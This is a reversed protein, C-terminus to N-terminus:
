PVDLGGPEFVTCFRAEHGWTVIHIYLIPSRWQANLTHTNITCCLWNGDLEGLQVVPANNTCLVNLVGLVNM